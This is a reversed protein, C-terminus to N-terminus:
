VPSQQQWPWAQPYAGGYQQLVEAKAAEGAERWTLRYCGGGEADAVDDFEDDPWHVENHLEQQRTGYNTHHHLFRTEAVKQAVESAEMACMGALFQACLRSQNSSPVEGVGQRQLAALLAGHRALVAAVARAM